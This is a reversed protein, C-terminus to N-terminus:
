DMGLTRLRDFRAFQEDSLVARLRREATAGSLGHREQDDELQEVEERQGHSLRLEDALELVLAPGPYASGPEVLRTIDTRAGEFRQLPKSYSYHQTYGVGLVVAAAFVVAAAIGGTGIEHSRTRNRFQM